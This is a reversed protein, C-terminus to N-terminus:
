RSDRRGTDASTDLLEKFDSYMRTAAADNAPVSDLGLFSHILGPFVHLTVAVGADALREGYEVCMDLLPDCDGVGIVAPAVGGLQRAHIPSAPFTRAADPDDRLYAAAAQRVEVLDFLYGTAANDDLSRYGTLTLDIEPYGLLQAAVSRGEDRLALAVAAALNGGASDGAVAMPGGGFEAAHDAIYRAVTLCDDYAAPFPHQPPLRYDVAIVVAEVDRCIRRCMADCMDLDGYAFAGAHFFVVVPATGNPEPQFIRVPVGSVVADDASRVTIPPQPALGLVLERIHAAREATSLASVSNEGPIGLDDMLALTDADVHM